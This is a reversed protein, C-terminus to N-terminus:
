KKFSPFHSIWEVRTPQLAATVAISKSGFTLKGIYSPHKKQTLKIYVDFANGSSNIGLKMLDPM